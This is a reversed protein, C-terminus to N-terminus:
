TSAIAPATIPTTSSTSDCKLGGAKAAAREAALSILAGKDEPMDATAPPIADTRGWFHNRWPPYYGFAEALRSPGDPLRLIDLLIPLTEPAAPRLRAFARGRRAMEDWDRRQRALAYLVLQLSAPRWGLDGGLDLAAASLDRRRQLEQSAGWLVLASPDLPAAVLRAYTLSEAVKPQGARLAAAAASTVGRDGYPDLTTPLARPAVLGILLTLGLAALALLLVARPVLPMQERGRPPPRRSPLPPSPTPM